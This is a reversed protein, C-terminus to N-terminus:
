TSLRYIFQGIARGSVPASCDKVIAFHEPLRSGPDFLIVSDGEILLYPNNSFGAKPDSFGVWYIGENVEVAKTNDTIDSM